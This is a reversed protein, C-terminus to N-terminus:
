WSATSALAASSRLMRHRSLLDSWLPLSIAAGLIRERRDAYLAIVQDENFALSLILDTRQALPDPAATLNDLVFWGRRGAQEDAVRYLLVIHSELRDPAARFVRGYALRLRAAEIGSERLAFYKAIALDECDGAGVRIVEDPAAWYDSRGWLRADSVRKFDNYYTNIQRVLNFEHDSDQALAPHEFGDADVPGYAHVASALLLIALLLAGSFIYPLDRPM